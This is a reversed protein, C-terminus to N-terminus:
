RLLVLNTKTLMVQRGLFPWLQNGAHGFDDNVFPETRVGHITVKSQDLQVLYTDGRKPLVDM